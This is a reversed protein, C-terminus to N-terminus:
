IDIDSDLCATAVDFQAVTLNKKVAIYLILRLSGIKPSPRWFTLAPKQSFGQAVFRAKRRAISKFIQKALSDSM